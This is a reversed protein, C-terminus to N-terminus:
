LIRRGATSWKKSTKGIIKNSVTAPTRPTWGFSYLFYWGLVVKRYPPHTYSTHKWSQGPHGPSDLSRTNGFLLPHHDDVWHYPKYIRYLSERNFTLHKTGARVRTPVLTRTTNSSKRQQSPGSWSSSLRLLDGAFVVDNVVDGCCMMREKRFQAMFVSFFRGYKKWICWKGLGWVNKQPHIRYGHQEIMKPSENMGGWHNTRGHVSGGQLYAEDIQAGGKGKFRRFTQAHGCGLVHWMLGPGPQPQKKPGFFSFFGLIPVKSNAPPDPFNEYKKQPTDLTMCIEAFIQLSKGSFSLSITQTPTMDCSGRNPGLWRHDGTLFSSFLFDGITFQVSSLSHKSMNLRQIINFWCYCLKAFKFFPLRWFGLFRPLHKPLHIHWTQNTAMTLPFLPKSTWGKPTNFFEPISLWGLSPPYCGVLGWTNKKKTTPPDRELFCWSTETVGMKLQSSDFFGGQKLIPTKMCKKKWLWAPDSSKKWGSFWLFSKMGPSPPTSRCFHLCALRLPEQTM